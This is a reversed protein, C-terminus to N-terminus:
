GTLTAFAEAAGDPRDWDADVIIEDVGADALDDLSRRVAACNGTSDVLRLVVRLAGPDRGAKEAAAAMARRADALTSPEIELASQQALWGDALSGARRLAVPSHGGIYLPVDHVPTPVCLVDAPLTYHQGDHAEPRGTWCSRLLEIWEVFRSGRSDFPVDLAAFEEALWGAGIGLALRGNSLVDLSALQKALVVPERQPLVLVATGVRATTTAAAIATMAVVVDFYPTDSAWTARGDEAFPYHSGIVAPLVVHDAVWLSEFGATELSAAMAGIGHRGPFPGSNPVKAGLAVRNGSM